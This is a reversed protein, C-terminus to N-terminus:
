PKHGAIDEPFITAMTTTAKAVLLPKGNNIAYVEAECFNMKRGGKLVWGVAHLQQGIGPNLYSVKLEGTVVHHDEPVVTYAAFGATIDAITAILGGHALGRQQLLDTRLDVFGETRGPAIVTLDFGILKMFHQGQLYKEIRAKFNPNAVKFLPAAPGQWATTGNQAAASENQLPQEM